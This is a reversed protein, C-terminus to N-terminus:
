ERWTAHHSSTCRPTSIEQPTPTPSSYQSPLESLIHPHVGIPTSIEQPTPTPSSCQSPLESM